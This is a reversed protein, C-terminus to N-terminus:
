GFSIHDFLTDPDSVVADFIVRIDRGNAMDLTFTRDNDFSIGHGNAVLAAGIRSPDNDQDPTMGWGTLRLVDDDALSLFVSDNGGGKQRSFIFLDDGGGGDMVDNGKDDFLRDRGGGGYLGDNDKGGKLIDVGGGGYLVDAGNGGQLVDKGGGGYLGDGGGNGFLRDKGGGGVLSDFASAGILRDQGRGGYMQNLGVGTTEISGRLIDNGAGGFITDIGGDGGTIVDDGGRGEATGQPSGANPYTIQHIDDGNTGTWDWPNDPVGENITPNLARLDAETWDEVVERVTPGNAGFDVIIAYPRDSINSTLTLQTIRDDAAEEVWAAVLTQNFTDLIALPAPFDPSTFTAVVQAGPNSGPVLTLGFSDRDAEPTLTTNPLSASLIPPTFGGVVLATTDFFTVNVDALTLPANFPQGYFGTNLV